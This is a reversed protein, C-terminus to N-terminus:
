RGHLLSLICPCYRLRRTSFSLYYSHHMAVTHLPLTCYLGSRAFSMDDDPVGPRSTAGILLIPKGQSAELSMEDMSVLLQAVIRREMERQASERKGAIVDIEDVFVVCGRSSAIAEANARAFLDRISRESDGSTGGVLAPAAIKLLPM